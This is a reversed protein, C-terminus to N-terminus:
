EMRLAEVPNTRSARLTQSGITLLGLLLLIGSGIFVTGFGFEVRNPLYQLWLNNLFYSAPAAIGVSIILMLLLEKSLLLAIALEPAGMVKRIGVEKTRREVSYTAMGLLGLCAILVSLFAIFGLISVIDFIAQHTAALQEDFFRYKFPHVPDVSEWKAKLVEVTGMLDDSSLKVNLFGYQELDSRMALPSIKDENVLIKFQFDKVVGAVELTNGWETEYLQGVMDAPHEFGMVRVAAENVLIHKDTGQGHPPLPKGAILKIDLTEIFHEDTRLSGFQTYEDESGLKRLTFNNNTGGAPIIDCASISTVGPVSSLATRVLEDDVGQLEINVINETAFGYEFNIYHKFQRFILISTVIFLLSVVFQSVGLVKRLGMKGRGATANAKLVKVPQYSAMVFAPYLGAVIGIALAFGVFILYIGWGTPFDFSFHQNLWLNMFAPKLFLILILWAFALSLLSMLVSESLFQFVLNGRHAGNTKRVGIERARTTARAISLNMYNLCACVLVVLSLLGLFYYGFAPLRYNTDNNELGMAIDAMPQGKFIINRKGEDEMNKYMRVGLSQLGAQLDAETGSEDMVVYTYNQWYHEWNDTLNELKSETYLRQRTAMSMLVDFHIHSRYPEDAIVGTVTFNGWEVPAAGGSGHDLPFPLQRDAFSVVKGLADEQGFLNAALESSLVISNPASLASIKNGKQLDFDFVEFFQKEAFYGRMELLKQGYEVDGGVGPMLHTSQEVAPYETRLVEALPFPSTAYAQRFDESDTLIRYIRDKKSHFQDYRHQDALMLIVLMCVSMAVALGFVNIFSFAKYKLINRLGVKLYNRFM